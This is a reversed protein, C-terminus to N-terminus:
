LMKVFHYAIVISIMTCIIAVMTKETRSYQITKGIAVVFVTALIVRAMIEPFAEQLVLITVIALFSFILLFISRCM